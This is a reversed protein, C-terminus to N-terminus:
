APIFFSEKLLRVHSCLPFVWWSSPCSSLCRAVTALSCPQCSLLTLVLLSWSSTNILLTSQFGDPGWGWWTMSPCAPTLHLSCPLNVARADVADAKRLPDKIKSCPLPSRKGNQCACPSPEKLCGQWTHPTVNVTRLYLPTAM